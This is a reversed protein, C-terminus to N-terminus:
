SSRAPLPDVRDRDRADGAVAREAELNDEGKDIRDAFASVEFLKRTKDLLGYGMRTRLDTFYVISPTM